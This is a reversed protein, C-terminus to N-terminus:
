RAPTDMLQGLVAKSRRRAAALGALGAGFLALTGPEPATVPEAILASDFIVLSTTAADPDDIAVFNSQDFTGIEIQGSCIFSCDTLTAPLDFRMDVLSLSLDM